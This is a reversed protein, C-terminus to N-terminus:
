IEYQICEKIPNLSKPDFGDTWQRTAIRMFKEGTDFVEEYHVQINIKSEEISLSENDIVINRHEFKIGKSLSDGWEESELDEITIEYPQVEM